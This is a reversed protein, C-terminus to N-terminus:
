GDALQKAFPDDFLVDLPQEAFAKVGIAGFSEFSDNDSVSVVQTGNVYGVLQTPGNGGGLCDLRLRVPTTLRAAVTSGTTLVDLGKDSIERMIATEGNSGLALEYSAGAGFCAV